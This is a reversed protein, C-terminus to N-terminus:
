VRTTYNVLKAILVCCASADFKFCLLFSMYYMVAQYTRKLILASVFFAFSQGV